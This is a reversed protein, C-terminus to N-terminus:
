YPAVSILLAVTCVPLSEALILWFVQRML